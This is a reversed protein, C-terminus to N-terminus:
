IYFLNLVEEVVILIKYYVTTKSGKYKDSSNSCWTNRDATISQAGSRLIALYLLAIALSFFGVGTIIPLLSTRM